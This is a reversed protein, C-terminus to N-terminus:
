NNPKQSKQMPRRIETNRVVQAASGISLVLCGICMNRFAGLQWWLTSRITLGAMIAITGAAAGLNSTSVAVFVSCALFAAICMNYEQIHYYDIDLVWRVRKAYLVSHMILRYLMSVSQIGVAARWLLMGQFLAETLGLLCVILLSALVSLVLQALCRNHILLASIGVSLASICLQICLRTVDIWGNGDRKRMSYVQSSIAFCTHLVSVYELAGGPYLLFDALRRTSVGLLVCQVISDTLAVAAGLSGAMVEPCLLAM